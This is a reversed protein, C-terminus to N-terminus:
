HVTCVCITIANVLSLCTCFTYSSFVARFSASFLQVGGIMQVFESGTRYYFPVRAEGAVAKALLTKGCGPPGLLLIGRPIRAGLEQMVWHLM